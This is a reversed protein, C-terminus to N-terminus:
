SIFRITLPYEWLEGKQAKLGGVIPFVVGIVGLAMLLPIGILLFVLVVSVSIYIFESIMFNMVMKGHEDIGPLEDKKMQWILIPAVLGAGPVAMGALVSLHLWMAWERSEKDLDADSHFDGGEELLRAKAEAFEHDDLTGDDHLRRLRELEHSINM